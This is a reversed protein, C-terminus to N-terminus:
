DKGLLKAFLDAGGMQGGKLMLEMGDRAPDPSHARSITVGPCLTTQYSLGWLHLAQVAHSSTDGGAIGVRRLPTRHDTQAQVVRAILNASAQAIHASSTIATVTGDTPGTYALVNLGRQLGDCIADQLTQTYAPDSVLRQADVPIREYDTAAQVQAATLPSLSGAWAFVPGDARAFTPTVAPAPRAWHAVLAQAVASSGVALLRAQQAQQWLLRGVTALQSSETLDMLTPVMAHAPATTDLLARLAADLADAGAGYLPYHLATIGDLGQRALHLRLDAEGMPTVPHQRMTPHRDIRHVAGGTGAAAFLNSFACYRGLSPQGGVIPVWRHSVTPHLAQIACAVNGVHPASDFTSCVKYHLVPPAIKEFFRGVGSLEARMAQPPMARAAGAIGIADLPGAAALAAASPVGMFLMARLGAQALVALTDTAGTFDDGYWGFLPTTM